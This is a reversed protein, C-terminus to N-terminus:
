SIVGLSDHAQVADAEGRAFPDLGSYWSAPPLVPIPQPAGAVPRQGQTSRWAARAARMGSLAAAEMCIVDLGNRTWDGAPFVRPLGPLATGSVPRLPWTGASPSFIRNRPKANVMVVYRVQARLHDPPDLIEARDLERPDLLRALDQYQRVARPGLDHISGLQRLLQWAMWRCAVFWDQRAQPSSLRDIRWQGGARRGHWGDRDAPWPRADLHDHHEPRALLDVLAQKVQAPWGFADPRDQCAFIDDFAGCSEIISGRFPAGDGFPDEEALAQDSWLGQSYDALLCWGGELGTISSGALGRRVHDAYEIRERTWLLIELTANAHAELPALSDRAAAAQQPLLDRLNGPAVASIIADAPHTTPQDLPSRWSRVQHTHPWGLDSSPAFSHGVIPATQVQLGAGDDDPGLGTARAQVVQLQVGGDTSAAAASVRQWLRLWLRHMRGGDASWIRASRPSTFIFALSRVATAADYSYPSTFTSDPGFRFHLTDAVRYSGDLLNRVAAPVARLVRETERSVLRFDNYTAEAREPLLARMLKDFFSARGDGEIQSEIVWGLAGVEDLWRSFPPGNMAVLLPSGWRALQLELWADYEVEWLPTEVGDVLVRDSEPDTKRATLSAAILALRMELDVEHAFFLDAFFLPDIGESLHSFLARFPDAFAAFWPTGQLRYLAQTVPLTATDPRQPDSLGMLAVGPGGPTPDDIRGQFVALAGAGGRPVLLGGDLPPQPEDDAGDGLMRRLNPYQWLVHYGHPVTGKHPLMPGYFDVRLNGHRDAPGDFSRSMAKGGLGSGDGGTPALPSVLQITLPQPPPADGRRAADRAAQWLEVLHMAASLGAVGGGIVAVKVPM